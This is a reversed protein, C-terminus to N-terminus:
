AIRTEWYDRVARVVPHGPGGATAPEPRRPEGLLTSATAAVSTRLADLDYGGELFYISRPAYESVRGTIDVYDGASLGLGTLPDDRHADFGASVLVWSPTFQEVIPAVVNDLVDLYLNGTAGAPFPVNLNAGVGAGVGTEDLWGTGPYLPWEHMSVYFVDPEDYFADQTGNGHHADWDVILVREGRARLAAATVAINNILCFGMARAPVAHHGPPRVALFANDDDGRDIAEIAALGAGAAHVAADWSAASAATDLDIAGGGDRCFRELNDLYRAPHVRELEEHSAARPALPTGAEAAGADALGALVADLRAPREPHGRGPDHQAFLPDAAVLVQSVGGQLGVKLTGPERNPV